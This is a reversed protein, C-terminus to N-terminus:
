PLRLHRAFLKILQSHSPVETTLLLYAVVPVIPSTSTTCVVSILTGRSILLSLGKIELNEASVHILLVFLGVIPLKLPGLIAM